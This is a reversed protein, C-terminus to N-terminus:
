CGPHAHEALREQLGAVRGSDDTNVPRKQSEDVTPPKPPSGCSGLLLLWPILLHSLIPLERMFNEM